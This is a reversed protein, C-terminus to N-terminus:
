IRNTSSKHSEIIPSVSAKSVKAARGCSFLMLADRYWTDIASIKRIVGPLYQRRACDVPATCCVHLHLQFVSPLYHFYLRYQGHKPEKGALWRRVTKQMQLLMPVHKQRLDRITHLEMDKFIVLYRNTEKIHSCNTVLMWDKENIHVTESDPVNENRILNFIWQQSPHERNAKIKNKFDESFFTKPCCISYVRSQSLRDTSVANCSCAVSTTGSSPSQSDDEGFSCTTLQVVAPRCRQTQVGERSKTSHESSRRVRPERRKYRCAKSWMRAEAASVYCFM